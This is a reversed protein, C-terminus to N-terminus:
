INSPFMSLIADVTAALRRQARVQLKPIPISLFKDTDLRCTGHPSREVVGLIRRKSGNLVLAIYESIIGDKPILAKMDQNITASSRLVAVPLTKALIMGRVVTLVSGPSLLKINTSAVAKETVHDVADNIEAVKM